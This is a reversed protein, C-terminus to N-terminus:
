DTKDEQTKADDKAAETNVDKTNEEQGEKKEEDAKKEGDDAKKEGDDVKEQAPKALSVNTKQGDEFATKFLAADLFNPYM